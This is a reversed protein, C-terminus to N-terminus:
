CSADELSRIVQRLLEPDFGRRVRIVVSDRVAIEVAGDSLTEATNSGSVVRVPLLRAPNSAAGSSTGAQGFRSRWWSVRQPTLGHERAFRGVSLGSARLAELMRKGDMETWRRGRPASWRVGGSEQKTAM